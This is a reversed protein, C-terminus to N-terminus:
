DWKEEVEKEEDVYLKEIYNIMNIKEKPSAKKATDKFDKIAENSLTM